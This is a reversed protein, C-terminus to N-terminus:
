GCDYFGTFAFNALVENIPNASPGLDATFPAEVVDGDVTVEGATLGSDDLGSLDVKDADAADDLQFRMVGETNDATERGGFVRLCGGNSPPIKTALGVSPGGRALLDAMDEPGGPPAAVLEQASAGKGSMVIMGDGADTIEAVREGEPDTITDGDREWGAETLQGALDDFSQETRIVAVPGSTDGENSAAAQIATGDIAEALPNPAGSLAAVALPPAGLSTALVLQSAPAELGETTLAELDAADADAPLGLESRAEAVDVVSLLSADNPVYQTLGDTPAADGGGGGSTTTSSSSTTSSAEDDGGCGTSALLALATALALLPRTM